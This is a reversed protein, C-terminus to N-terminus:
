QNLIQRNKKKKQNNVDSLMTKQKYQLITQYLSKLSGRQDKKELKLDEQFTLVYVFENKPNSLSAPCKALPAM